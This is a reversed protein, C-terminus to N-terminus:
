PEECCKQCVVYPIVSFITTEIDINYKMALRRFCLPCEVESKIKEKESKDIKEWKRAKM